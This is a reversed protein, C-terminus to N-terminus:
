VGVNIRLIGLGAGIVTLWVPGLNLRELGIFAGVTMALAIWDLAALGAGGDPRVLVTLALNAFTGVLLAIVGANVGKLFELVLPYRRLYPVLRGLLLVVLFAPLFVGVTGAVAGVIGAGVGGAPTLMVYGAAAATSLVPGPTSQGIALVDLLQQPTFWATEQVFARQMYSALVYGSGFLTGGIVLFRWFIDFVMPTLTTALQAGWRGILDVGPLMPLAATIAGVVPRRLLLYAAGAGLLLVLEHIAFLARGGVLGMLSDTSVIVIGLAAVCLLRMARSDLAKKALRYGASLILALIVPEVGILLGRVAPVSGASLYVMALLVSFFVAPLIFGAGAAFMGPLGGALLGIHLAMETSNPGPVLNIAALLDLFHQRSLWGRKNVLEREMLVLHAAPGGFGIVGFVFFTRLLEPLPIPKVHYVDSPAAPYPTPM